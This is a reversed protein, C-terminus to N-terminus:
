CRGTLLKNILTGATKAERALDRLEDRLAQAYHAGTLGKTATVLRDFVAQHYTQPHPGFQGVVYVLNAADNLSLGAEEFLPKFKPTWPGGNRTSTSNKNTAIHHFQGTCRPGGPGMAAGGAEPEPRAEAAPEDVSAAGM